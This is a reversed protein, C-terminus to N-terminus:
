EPSETSQTLAESDEDLVFKILANSAPLLEELIWESLPTTKLSPIKALFEAKKQSPLHLDWHEPVEAPVLHM